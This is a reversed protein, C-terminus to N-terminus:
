MLTKLTKPKLGLGLGQSGGVSAFFMPARQVRGGHGANKPNLNELM